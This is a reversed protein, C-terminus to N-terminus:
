CLMGVRIRSCLVTESFCSRACHLTKEERYIQVMREERNKGCLVVGSPTMQRLEGNAGQWGSLSASATHPVAAMSAFTHLQHQTHCQLWQHLPICTISHTASYGNICLYAAKPNNHPFLYHSATNPVAAMSAFTHLQKQIKSHFCQSATHPVAAITYVHQHLLVCSCPHVAISAINLQPLIVSGCNQEPITTVFRLQLSVCSFNCLLHKLSPSGCCRPEAAIVCLKQHKPM